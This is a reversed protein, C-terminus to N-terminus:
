AKGKRQITVSGIEKYIIHARFKSMKEYRQLYKSIM